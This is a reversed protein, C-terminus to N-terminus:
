GGESAGCAMDRVKEAGTKSREALWATISDPLYVTKVIKSVAEPNPLPKLIDMPLRVRGPYSEVSWTHSKARTRILNQALEGLAYLNASHTHSDADRVTKTKMALHYLLGVNEHTCVLDLYFEIYRNRPTDTASCKSRAPNVYKVIDPIAEDSLQFDPHHALLHLFRIFIM